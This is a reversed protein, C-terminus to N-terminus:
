EEPLGCPLIKVIRAIHRSTQEGYMQGISLLMMSGILLMRVMMNKEKMFVNCYLITAMCM